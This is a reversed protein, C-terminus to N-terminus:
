PSLKLLAVSIIFKSGFVCSIYIVNKKKKKERKKEDFIGLPILLLLLLIYESVCSVRVRDVVLQSFLVEFALALSLQFVSSERAGIKLSM